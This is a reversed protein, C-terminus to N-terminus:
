RDLFSRAWRNSTDFAPPASRPPPLQVVSPAPDVQVVISGINLRVDGEGIAEPQGAAPGARSFSPGVFTAPQQSRYRLELEKQRREVEAVVAQLTRAARQGEEDRGQRRPQIVTNELGSRILETARAPQAILTSDQLANCEDKELPTDSRLRVLEAPANMPRHVSAASPDFQIAHVSDIAADQSRVSDPRPDEMRKIVAARERMGPKSVAASAPLGTVNDDSAMEGIVPLGVRPLWSPGRLPMMKARSERSLHSLYRM